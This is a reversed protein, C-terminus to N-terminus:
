DSDGNVKLKKALRRQESENRECSKCRYRPRGDARRYYEDQVSKLKGCTRCTRLEPPDEDKVAEAAPPSFRPMLVISGAQMEPAFYEELAARFEDVEHQELERPAPIVPGPVEQVAEPAAESARVEPEPVIV